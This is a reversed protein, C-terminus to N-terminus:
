QRKKGSKCFWTSSRYGVVYPCWCQDIYSHKLDWHECDQCHVLIPQWNNCDVVRNPNAFICVEFCSCNKCIKDM